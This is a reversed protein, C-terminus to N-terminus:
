QSLMCIIGNQDCKGSLLEIVAEGELGPISDVAKSVQLFLFVYQM